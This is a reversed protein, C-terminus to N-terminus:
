SEEESAVPLAFGFEAGGGERERAWVRGDLSEVIRKVVALGLGAGSARSASPSRYFPEFLEEPDEGAIGPGRDLVRVEIEDAAHTLTVHVPASGDTYKAANGLLNVFVRELWAVRGEILMPGPEISVEYPREPDRERQTEVARETVHHLLIPERQQAEDTDLRALVLMSEILDNLEAASRAIDRLAAKMEAPDLDTQVLVRCMGLIVTMPTRLEHSVLGLFEDKIALATQLRAQTAKRESIDEIVGIFHEPSGDARRVLSVTLEIWVVRGDKRIYRKEMSYKDIEGALMREVQTLDAELDDPHTIQQFTMGLMEDRSYGTIECIRDNVRLWTGDAAVHSVGIAAHEFTRRYHEESERLDAKARAREIADWTLDAVDCALRVEDETWERPTAQHVYLSGVWRGRRLIPAGLLARAGLEDFRGDRTRPDARQDAIAITRGEHVEALYGSGIWATSWRGTLPALSGATWSPGFVIADGDALEFFGCRDAALQRGVAASAAAMMAEPVEEDRQSQMLELLIGQREESARLSAEAQKRLIFQGLEGGIGELTEVLEPDAVTRQRSFTDIVGLFTRGSLLPFAVGTTLGAEIAQAARRFGADGAVSELHAVERTQWVRGPLGEGPRFAFARTDAVFRSFREDDVDNAQIEVCRLTSGDREPLWLGCVDVELHTAIARLIGPAAEAVSEATALVAAVDRGLDLRRQSRKRATIDRSIGAARVPRGEADVEVRGQAHFWRIEGDDRVVPTEIDIVGGREMAADIIARGRDRAGPTRREYWEIEDHHDDPDTGLLVHMEPSLSVTGAQVDWDWAGASASTLALRLREESRRLAEEVRGDSPSGVGPVDAASARDEPVTERTGVPMVDTPDFMADTADAVVDKASM